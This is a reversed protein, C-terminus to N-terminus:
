KHMYTEYRHVSILENVSCGAEVYDVACLALDCCSLLLVHHPCPHVVAQVFARSEQICQLRQKPMHEKRLLLRVLCYNDRMEPYKSHENVLRCSSM